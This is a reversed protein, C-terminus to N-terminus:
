ILMAEGMVEGNVDVAAVAPVPPPVPGRVILPLVAASGNKRSGAEVGTM